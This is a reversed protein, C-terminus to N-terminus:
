DRIDRWDLASGIEPEGSIFQDFSEYFINWARKKDTNPSLKREIWKFRNLDEPHFAKYQRVCLGLSIARTKGVKVESKHKNKTIIDLLDYDRNNTIGRARTEFYVEKGDRMRPEKYFLQMIGNGVILASSFEEYDWKGLEQSIPLDLRKTTLIGDTAFNVMSEPYVLAAEWLALRTDGTIYSAYPFNTMKGWGHKYQATKGYLGNLLIKMNYQRAFNKTCGDLGYKYKMRETYFDRMWAFPNKFEETLQKWGVGEELWECFYGHERLWNFESLTIIQDRMGKPFYVNYSSVKLAYEKDEFVEKFCVPHKESKFPIVESDFRALVWGYDYDNPVADETRMDEFVGNAWDPLTIMVNPYASNIDYDYLPRKFLGRQFTLFCGGRYATQAVVQTNTKYFDLKPYHRDSLQKRASLTACSIPKDFSYGLSYFQSQTLQALKLTLEADRQCYRRIKTLNEDYYARSEGIKKGSVDQLKGTNLFKRSAKDLSYGRYYQAIDYIHIGHRSKGKGKSIDMLKGPIYFLHFVGYEIRHNKSLWLEQQVDWPLTKIMAQCDFQLNFTFYVKGRNERTVLASTIDDWTEVDYCKNQTCLLAINAEPTETM